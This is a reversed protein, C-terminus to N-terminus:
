LMEGVMEILDVVTDAINETDDLYYESTIDFADKLIKIQKETLEVIVVTKGSM